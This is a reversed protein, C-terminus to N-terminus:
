VGVLGMREEKKVNARCADLAVAMRWVREFTPAVLFAHEQRPDSIQRKEEPCGCDLLCPSLYTPEKAPFHPLAVTPEM